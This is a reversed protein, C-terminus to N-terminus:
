IVSQNRLPNQISPREEDSSDCESLPAISSKPTTFSEDFYDNVTLLDKHINRYLVSSQEMLKCYEAYQEEIYAKIDIDDPKLNLIKFINISLIYYAKSLAIETNINNTLNLYLKISSLIAIVMSIITTIVSANNPGVVNLNMFSSSFVSAIIIPIDFYKSLSNFYIYRATHKKNLQVANMRIRQLINIYVENWLITNSTM